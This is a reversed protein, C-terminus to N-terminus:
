KIHIQKFFHIRLYRSLIIALRKMLINKVLYYNLIEENTLKYNSFKDLKDIIDVALFIMVFSIIILLFKSLFNNIIYLDLKKM